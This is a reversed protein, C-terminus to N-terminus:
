KLLRNLEQVMAPRRPYKMKLKKAVELIQQKGVPMDKILDEMLKVLAAYQSRDSANDGKAELGPLYIPLLQDAYEHVLYQHYPLIRDLKSENKVLAFLRDWYQEKIYFPSVATLLHANLPTWRDNFHAKTTKKITEEILADIIVRWEETPYTAKWKNYYEGNIWHRDLAFKKYYHRMSEIDNELIAIRLLQKEWQSVTGPHNQKEAILIGGTILTKAGEFDAKSIAKDVEGQRVSEIDLNQQVLEEVEKIRGLAKLFNIKHTRYFNRQYDDHKGTLKLVEKDIFDLFVQEKKLEISLNEFLSFLDYGADSHDFYRSGTFGKHLVSFIHEKLDYPIEDRTVISDILKVIDYVVGGLSGNSDDASALVEQTETLVVNAITFADLYNRKNVMESAKGILKDIENALGSSSRYDVYGHDSYKNVLKRVLDTYKQGVDARDDKEAFFIEFATKFDKNKKAYEKVFGAYEEATIKSLLDDFPNKAGGKKPIVPRYAIEERIAYFVAVVHKCIDGDYPCDCFYGTIEQDKKITVEVSYDETGEVEATWDGNNEEIELVAGNAFYQTGKNLMSKGIRKEFNQITLINDGEIIDM